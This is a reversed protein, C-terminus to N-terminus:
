TSGITSRSSTRLKSMLPWRGLTINEASARGSSWFSSGRGTGAVIWYRKWKESKKEM